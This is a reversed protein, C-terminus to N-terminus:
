SESKDDQSSKLMEVLRKLLTTITRLSGRQLGCRKRNQYNVIELFPRSYTFELGNQTARRNSTIVAVIERKEELIGTLFLNKANAALQLYEIAKEINTLNDHAFNSISDTTETKLQLLSTKRQEYTGKDISGDLFADTLREFRGEIQRLNLELGRLNSERKQLLEAKVAEQNNVLFSLDLPSLTIAELMAIVVQEIHEERFSHVPRCSLSHCRYYIHGKQREGVLAYGCGSCNILRRFLFDYKYIKKPAKGSIVAQVRDFIRKSVLPQHVGAFTENTRKLHILGMYFPNKLVTAVHSVNLRGGSRNRLGRGDMEEILSILSYKGTAYLDFMEQILPARAEDLEKVKGGGMDRYGLPAALPYLGQKLRGYFGKLVEARLNRIYDAAVVAQIDAALRGGRSRLDLNEFAFQVDIGSDILEGLDAWDRLNRAGRDLKHLIVGAAKGQRLLKMMEAFVSRGRKAATEQEEFWRVIRQGNQEAFRTIADRQEHLSVGQVGQKPTSVRIYAFYLAM